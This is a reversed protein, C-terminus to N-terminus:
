NLWEAATQFARIAAAAADAGLGPHMAFAAAEMGAQRAANAADDASKFAESEKAWYPQMEAETSVKEQAETVACVEKVKAYSDHATDSSKFAKAIAANVAEAQATAATVDAVTIVGENVCNDFWADFGSQSIPTNSINMLKHYLNFFDEKDRLPADTTFLQYKM